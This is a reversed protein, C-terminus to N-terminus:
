SAALRLGATGLIILLISVVKLFSVSEHFFVIGIVSVLLIGFAGWIAYAVSIDITKLAYSLFLFCLIYGAITGASPLLVSFENSMKLFTTAITEFIIALILYIWNM